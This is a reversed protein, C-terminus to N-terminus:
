IGHFDAGLSHNIGWNRVSLPRFLVLSYDFVGIIGMAIAIDKKDRGVYRVKDGM